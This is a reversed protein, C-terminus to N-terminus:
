FFKIFQYDNLEKFETVPFSTPYQFDQPRQAYWIFIEPFFAVCFWALNFRYYYELGAILVWSWDNAGQLFALYEKEQQASLPM